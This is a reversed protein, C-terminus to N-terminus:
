AAESLVFVPVSALFGAKAPKWSFRFDTYEEYLTSNDINYWFEKTLRIKKNGALAGELSNSAWFLHNSSAPFVLIFILFSFFYKRQEINKM